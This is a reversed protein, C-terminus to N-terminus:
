HETGHDYLEPHRDHLRRRYRQRWHSAQAPGLHRCSRGGGRDDQGSPVASRIREVCESFTSYLICRLWILVIQFFIPFNSYTFYM